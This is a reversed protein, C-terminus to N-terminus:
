KEPPLEAPGRTEDLWQAATIEPMADKACGIVSRMREIDVVRRQPGKVVIQRDRLELEILDGPKLGASDLFERPITIEGKTSLTANM